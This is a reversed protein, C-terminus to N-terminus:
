KNLYKNMTEYPNENSIGMNQLYEILYELNGTEIEKEYRQKSVVVIKKLSLQPFINNEGLYVNSISFVVCSILDNYYLERIDVKDFRGNQYLEFKSNNDIKINLLELGTKTKWTLPYIKELVEEISKYKDTHSLVLKAMDKTIENIKEKTTEDIEVNLEHKYIEEGRRAIRCKSVKLEILPEKNEFKFYIKNNNWVKASNLNSNYREIKLVSM